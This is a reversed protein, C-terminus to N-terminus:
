KESILPVIFSKIGESADPYDDMWEQAEDLSQFPGFSVGEKIGKNEWYSYVIWM